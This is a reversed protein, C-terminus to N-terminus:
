AARKLEPNRAILRAVAEAATDGTTGAFPNGNPHCALWFTPPAWKLPFERRWHEVRFGAHTTAELMM